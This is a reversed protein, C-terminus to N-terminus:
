GRFNILKLLEDYLGDLQKARWQDVICKIEGIYGPIEEIV